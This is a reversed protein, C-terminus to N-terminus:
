NLGFQDIVPNAYMELFFPRLSPPCQALRRDFDAQEAYLEIESYEPEILPLARHRRARRLHEYALYNSPYLRYNRLIQADIAEAVARASDYEGELPTGFAVHVRGKFGTMGSVISSVDENDAKAYRGTRAREELERAKAVDCPDYEYSVAVPVIRLQRMAEAFPVQDRKPSMHFMKVIAADTRDIGDKARGEQQAIWISHGDRLSQNIYASLTMFADRLARPSTLDRKVIFSKNLRMMEGVLRNKLLNDGIAIRVTDFGSRHLALNVLAPDLVIDRHNSVFLYSQAPALHELGDFSFSRTTAAVMKEAYRAIVAQLDAVSHVHRFRTKLFLQAWWQTLFPLRSAPWPLPVGSILSLFQRDNLLRDLVARVEADHYPRIDDFQNM